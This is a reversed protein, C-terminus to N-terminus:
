MNYTQKAYLLPTLRHPFAFIGIDSGNRKSHEIQQIFHTNSPLRDLTVTPFLPAWFYRGKFSKLSFKNM